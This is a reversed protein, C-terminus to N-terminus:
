RKPWSKISCVKHWFEAYNTFLYSYESINGRHYMKIHNSWSEIYRKYSRFSGGGMGCCTWSWAM